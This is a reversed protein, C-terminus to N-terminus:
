ETYAGPLLLWGELVIFVEPRFRYCVEASLAKIAEPNFVSVGTFM